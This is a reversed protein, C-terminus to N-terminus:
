PATCTFSAAANVDGTGNYLAYQPYECVPLSRNTTGVAFAYTLQVPPKNSEVWDVIASLWDIQKLDGGAGHTSGPVIFLRTNARPDALGLLSALQVMTAHHRAHDSASVLPDGADNWALLKRGSAVFAAIAAKDHDTGRRLMGDGILYYDTNLNFATQRAPTLWAPDDTGLLAFGGALGGGGPVALGVFNTWAYKSSAVAGSSLMLDSLQSRLTAVQPASLCLTPDANAGPQGCQLAGPDLTCGAPNTLYGDVLGDGADCAAVASAYAAGYQAASLAAPTGAKSSVNLIAAVLAAMDMTECGQVIGDYESPYRQAVEYAERGGESCGNFYTWKPASAYFSKALAKAFAITTGLARYSYDDGSAQGDSSGSAWVAPAAQAPVTARNGGNSAAYIASKQMVAVHVATVVGSASQSVASPIRGDFGGGGQHFVRGSWDDPVDVEIDLFPARTGLVQCLGAGNVNAAPEIRKADTVTVGAITQGKLSACTATLAAVTPATSAPADDSGGCASLAAALAAALIPGATPRTDIARRQSGPEKYARM